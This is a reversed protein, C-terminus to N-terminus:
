RENHRDMQERRSIPNMEERQERTRKNQGEKHREREEEGERTGRQEERRKNQLENHREMQKRRKPNGPSWDEERGRKGSEALEATYNDIM